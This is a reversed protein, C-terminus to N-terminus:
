KTLGPQPLRVVQGTQSSQTAAELIRLTTVADTPDVPVPGDDLLANRWQAYFQPWAGPTSPVRRADDGAGVMPWSLEPVAGWDDADPRRGSRLAAEQPDLDPAVFAARDGLVRLRPGRQAALASAWLHTTVGSTHRLAVFVDDDVVADTRRVDVEGYVTTVPGFLHTAQDVLHSGLDLLIGGGAARDGSEKWGPKLQSRFREFRSEFRHVRGLEGDALVRQLTLLEADWRRNQYTTVLVDRQRAFEVLDAAETSSIALPKDVVVPLGVELAAHALTVHSANPTAVVVSDYDEATSWVEDPHALVRAEPLATRAQAQREPNGTVVATVRMGPVASIVPAHFTSGALGYGILAIRLPM